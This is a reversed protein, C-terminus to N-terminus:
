SIRLLSEMLQELWSIGRQAITSAALAELETGIEDIVITQPLPERAAEIMVKHQMYVNPVQMRRANGIGIHPIDGDGAIENSTDVIVVRKKYDDALMRAIERIVTTKGVGPPGILLLSGGGEVLDRIIDASGSLARGVRCTLGIIRGRRNRIASIRHLSRDIGARNDDAFDGVMSIAQELDEFTVPDESIRFDGSPFRAFPKRGLDMVIEILNELEAHGILLTNMRQPLLALLRSLELEFAPPSTFVSGNSSPHSKIHAQGNRLSCLQYVKSNLKLSSHLPFNQLLKLKSPSYIPHGSPPSSVSSQISNKFITFYPNINPLVAAM